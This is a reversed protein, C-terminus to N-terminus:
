SGAVVLRTQDETNQHALHTPSIKGTEIVGHPRKKLDQNICHVVTAATFGVAMYLFVQVDALIRICKLLVYLCSPICLFWEVSGRVPGPV